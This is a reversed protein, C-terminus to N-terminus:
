LESPIRVDYFIPKDAPILDAIFDIRAPISDVLQKRDADPIRQPHHTLVYAFLASEALDELAPKQKAYTTVFTNDAAQARQWALSKAYKKDWAAHVSEHFLTEELDHTSIRKTANDSYLVILGVDSFATTSEGGKHVVIRNVGNRLATPLKGLRTAYRMADTQAAEKSEFDADISIEVATFDTYTAKFVFADQFLEDDGTKDPMERLGREEFTLQQFCSPDSDTIFDIDTGVVSSAYQQATASSAAQLAIPLTVLCVLSRYKM